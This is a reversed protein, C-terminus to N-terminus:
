AVPPFEHQRRVPAPQGNANDDAALGDDLVGLRTLDQFGCSEQVEAWLRLEPPPMWRM